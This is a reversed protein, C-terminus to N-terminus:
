VTELQKKKKKKKKRTVYITTENNEDVIIYDKSSTSINTVSVNGSTNLISNPTLHEPICNTVIEQKTENNETIDMNTILESENKYNCNESENKPDHLVPSEVINQNLCPSAIRKIVIENEIEGDEPSSMGGNSNQENKNILADSESERNDFAPVAANQNRSSSSIEKIEIQQEIEGDGPSRMGGNSNQENKDIFTESESNRYDIAPATSPSPIEEIEIENEIEGDEPSSVGNSLDPVNEHIVHEPEHFDHASVKVDGSHCRSWMQNAMVDERIETNDVSTAVNKNYCSSPIEKSVNDQKIEENNPSCIGGNFNTQIEHIVNESDNKIHNVTPAIHDDNRHPFPIQDVKKGIRKALNSSPKELPSRDHSNRNRRRSRSRSRPRKSKKRDRSSSRSRKRKSREVINLQERLDRQERREDDRCRQSSNRSGYKVCVSDYDDQHRSQYRHNSQHCKKDVLSERQKNNTKFENHEKVKSSFPNNSQNESKKNTEIKKLEYTGFPKCTIQSQTAISHTPM